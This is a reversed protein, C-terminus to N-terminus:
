SSKKTPATIQLADIAKIIPKHLDVGKLNFMDPPRKPDIHDMVFTHLDIVAIGHQKAVQAAITNYEIESGVDYLGESPSKLIPTTSSWILKAGTGELRTMIEDLNKEYQAPSTVRVGGAFKSMARVAKTSPDKFHLDAFGFNFHIVDWPKDGLLQDLNELAETTSGAEKWSADITGAMEKAVRRSMENYSVDGLFLVRPKAEDANVIGALLLLLISAFSLSKGM